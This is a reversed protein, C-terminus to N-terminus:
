HSRDARLSLNIKGARAVPPSDRDLEIPCIKNAPTAGGLCLYCSLLDEPRSLVKPFPVLWEASFTLIKMGPFVDIKEKQNVEECYISNPVSM